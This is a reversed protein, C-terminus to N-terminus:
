EGECSLVTAVDEVAEPALYAFTGSAEENDFLEKAKRKAEEPSNAEVDFVEEAWCQWTREYKITFTKKM